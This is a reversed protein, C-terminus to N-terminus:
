KIQFLDFVQTISDEELKDIEVVAVMSRGTRRAHQEISHKYGLENLTNKYSQIDSCEIMDKKIVFALTDDSQNLNIRYNNGLITQVKKKGLLKQEAFKVNVDESIEGTLLKIVSYGEIIDAFEVLKKNLSEKLIMSGHLFSNTDM